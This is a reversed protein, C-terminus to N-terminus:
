EAHQMVTKNGAPCVITSVPTKWHGTILYVM